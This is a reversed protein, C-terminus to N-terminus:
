PVVEEGDLYKLYRLANETCFVVQHTPYRFMALQMFAERTMPNDPDLLDDIFSWITDDAMPGEVIDYNHAVGSRCNIVFDLWEDSMESFYKISLRQTALLKYKSIYGKISKKRLAWKKAQNYIETTYFGYGFDLHWSSSRIAPSEIFGALSGHYLIVGSVFVNNYLEDLKNLLYGGVHDSYDINNIYLLGRRKLSPAFQTYIETLKSATYEDLKTLLERGRYVVSYMM